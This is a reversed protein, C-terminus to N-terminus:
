HAVNLDGAIVVPRQKEKSLKELYAFFDKDWESVRYNLRKLGEGANPVYVAVVILEPFELTISRGEGDHKPIGIDYQVSLPKIKTM